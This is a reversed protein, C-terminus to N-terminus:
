LLFYFNSVVVNIIDALFSLILKHLRWRRCIERYTIARRTRSLLNRSLRQTLECYEPCISLKLNSWYIICDFYKEEHKLYKIKFTSSVFRKVIIIQLFQQSSYMPWVPVCNSVRMHTCRCCIFSGLMLFVGHLSCKSM